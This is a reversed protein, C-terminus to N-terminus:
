VPMYGINPISNAAHSHACAKEEEREREKNESACENTKIYYALFLHISIAYVCQSHSDTARSISYYESHECPGNPTSIFIAKKCCVCLCVCVRVHFRAFVVLCM